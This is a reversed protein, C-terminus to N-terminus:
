GACASRRLARPDGWRELMALDTRSLSDGLAQGVTPMLAAALARIRTKREGIDAALRAM